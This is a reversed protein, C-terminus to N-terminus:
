DRGRQDRQEAMFVGGRHGVPIQARPSALGRTAYWGILSVGILSVGIVPVGTLPEGTLPVGIPPGGIQSVGIVPV